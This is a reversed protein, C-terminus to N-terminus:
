LTTPQKESVEDLPSSTRDKEAKRTLFLLLKLIGEFNSCLADRNYGNQQKNSENHISYCFDLFSFHDLSLTPIHILYMCTWNKVQGDNVSHTIYASERLRLRLTSHHSWQWSQICQKIYPQQVFCIFYHTFGLIHLTALVYVNGKKVTYQSINLLITMYLQEPM